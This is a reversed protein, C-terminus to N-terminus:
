RTEGEDLDGAYEAHVLAVVAASPDALTRDRWELVPSYAARSNADTKHRGDKDIQPKSPLSAWPGNPGILVPVDHIKLGIPLEVTAYGRLSGKVLSKWGVLRM